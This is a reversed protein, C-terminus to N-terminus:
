SKKQGRSCNPTLVTEADDLFRTLLATLNAMQEDTWESLAEQLLSRRRHKIAQVKEQGEDTIVLLTARGDDPDAERRVYGREVLQAVHRSITSPDSNLAQALQRSRMSERELHFLCTFAAIEIDGDPTRLNTSTAHEKMRSYRALAGFLDDISSPELM